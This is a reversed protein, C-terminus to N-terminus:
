LVLDVGVAILAQWQPITLVPVDTLTMQRAPTPALVGLAVFSRLM